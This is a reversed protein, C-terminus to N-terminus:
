HVGRMSKRDALHYKMSKCPKAKKQAKKHASYNFGKQPATTGCSPAIFCIALSAILIVVIKKM